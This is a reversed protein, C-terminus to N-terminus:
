YIKLIQQIYNAVDLICFSQGDNLIENCSSIFSYHVDFWVFEDYRFYYIFAWQLVILSFFFDIITNEYFIKRQIMFRISICVKEM